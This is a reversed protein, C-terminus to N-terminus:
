SAACLADLMLTVGEHLPKGNVVCEAVAEATQLACLALPAPM